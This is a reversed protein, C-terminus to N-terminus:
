NATYQQEKMIAIVMIAKLFQQSIWVARAPSSVM